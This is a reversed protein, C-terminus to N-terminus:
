SNALEILMDAHCPTGARCWCALNRGALQERIIAREPPPGPSLEPALRGTVWRGYRSVAEAQAADHDLGLEAMVDAIVFPNGWKGPRAVSQAPLGNRAMSVAQLNFGRGRSLVIREPKM